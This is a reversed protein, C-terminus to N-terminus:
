VPLRAILREFRPSGRLPDFQPNVRLFLIRVDRQEFARELWLISRAPEGTELLRLSLKYPVGQRSVNRDLEALQSRWYAELGARGSNAEIQRLEDTSAGGLRMAALFERRADEGRGVHWYVESLYHHASGFAPSVSLAEALRAESRATDGSYFLARGSATRAWPSAPDLAVAREAAEVARRTDGQALRITALARWAEGSKPDLWLADDIEREADAIKWDVRLLVAAMAIHSSASKPRMAIAMRAAENARRRGSAADFRGNDVLDLMLPALEAYAPGFAVRQRISAELLDRAIDLDAGAGRRILTVASWYEEPAGPQSTRGRYSVLALLLTAIAAAAVWRMRRREPVIGIRGVFRYGRKPVTEIWKPDVASDGLGERLRNIANNLGRERDTFTTPWLRDQLESRTVLQGAREALMTLLDIVQPALAVTEGNRRLTRQDADLQFSEFQYVPM